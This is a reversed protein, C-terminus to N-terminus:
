TTLWWLCSSYQGWKQDAEPRSNGCALQSNSGALCRSSKSGPLSRNPMAKTARPAPGDIASGGSRTIYKAVHPTIGSIRLDTVFDRTDYGKDTGLTKQQAGSLLRAIRLAVDREAKGTAHSVEHAM